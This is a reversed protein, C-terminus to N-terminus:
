PAAVNERHQEFIRKAGRLLFAIVIITVITGAPSGIIFWTYLQMAVVYVIALVAAVRSGRSIAYALVGLVTLAFLFDSAFWRALAPQQVAGIIATLLRLTLYALLAIWAARISNDAPAAV